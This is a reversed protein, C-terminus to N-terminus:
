GLLEGVKKIPGEDEESDECEENDECDKFISFDYKENYPCIIETDFYYKRIERPQDKNYYYEADMGAVACDTSNDRCCRYCAGSKFDEYSDCRAGIFKSSPSNISVKFYQISQLHFCFTPLLSVLGYFLDLRLVTAIGYELCAPQISGGNPYFDVHGLPTKLGFNTPFCLGGDSHIVDVFKANKYSLKGNHIDENSVPAVAPDLFTLRRILNGENQDKIFKAATGVFYTGYSHGILHFQDATVGTQNMINQIVFAAQEGAVLSNQAAAGPDPTNGWTWDVLIVNYDGRIFLQTKIERQWATRCLGDLWGHAVFITDVDKDFNTDVPLKGGCKHLPEAKDPNTPTFLAFITEPPNNGIQPTIPEYADAISIDCEEYHINEFCDVVQKGLGTFIDYAHCHSLFLLLCIKRLHAFM